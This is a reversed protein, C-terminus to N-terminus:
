PKERINLVPGLLFSWGASIVTGASAAIIPWHELLKDQMGESLDFFGNVAVAISTAMLGLALLATWNVKPKKPGPVITNDM